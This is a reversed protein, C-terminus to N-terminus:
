SEARLARIKLNIRQLTQNTANVDKAKAAEGLRGAEKVLEASMAAVKDKLKAPVDPSKPLLLAIKELSAAADALGSWQNVYFAENAASAWARCNTLADAYALAQGEAPLPMVPLREAPLQCSALSLIVFGILLRRM